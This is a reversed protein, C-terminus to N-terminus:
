RGRREYMGPVVPGKEGIAERRLLRQLTATTRTTVPVRLLHELYGTVNGATNHPKWCVSHAHTPTLTRLEVLRDPSRLPSRFGSIEDSDYFSIMSRYIGEAPDIVPAEAVAQSIDRLSRVTVTQPYGALQLAVLATATTQEPDSSEFVVTGNTQFSRSVSPGGFAGVLEARSPSGPHGLNLNRFLAVWTM